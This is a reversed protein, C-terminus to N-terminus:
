AQIRAIQTLGCYGRYPRIFADSILLENPAVPCPLFNGSIGVGDPDNFDGDAPLVVIETEPKLAEQVPDIEAMFLPARYRVVRANFGANRTYILYLRKNLAAFHQQTTGTEMEVGDTFRWPKIPSFDMGDPSTSFYARGDEARMTLWIRNGFAFLSPELLGRGCNLGLPRSFDQLIFCEGDFKFKGIKVHFYKEGTLRGSFPILWVSDARIIKQASGCTICEYADLEPFDFMRRKGWSAGPARVCYVGLRRLDPRLRGGKFVGLTDLFRGDRYFVNHGVAVACGTVTDVDPVVDCVGEVIGEANPASWGLAPVPLPASWQFGNDMSFSELVPGYSDSGSITQVTMWLRGDPLSTVKPHFMSQGVFGPSLLTTLSIRM